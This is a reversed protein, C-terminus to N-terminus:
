NIFLDFTEYMMFKRSIITVCNFFNFSNQIIFKGIFAQKRYTGGICTNALLIEILFDAFNM